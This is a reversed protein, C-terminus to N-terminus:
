YETEQILAALESTSLKASRADALKQRDATMVLKHPLGASNEWRYNFLFAEMTVREGAPMAALTVGATLMLDRMAGRLEVLKKTKRDHLATTETKSTTQSFPTFALPSVTVLNM